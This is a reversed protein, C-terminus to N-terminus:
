AVACTSSGRRKVASARRCKSASAASAFPSSTSGCGGGGRAVGDAAHPKGHVDVSPGLLRLLGQQRRVAARRVPPVDPSPAPAGGRPAPRLLVVADHGSEQTRVRSTSGAARTAGRHAGLQGFGATRPRRRPAPGKPSDARSGGPARLGHALGSRRLSSYTLVSCRSIAATAASPPDPAPRGSERARVAHRPSRGRGLRQGDTRPDCRTVSGADRFALVLRELPVPAIERLERAGSPEVRHDATVLLDAASTCTSERRVFFLGTSMPSGPTPLVAMTSPSACRITRCRRARLAQLSLRRIAARSM